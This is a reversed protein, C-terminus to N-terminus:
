RHNRVYLGEKLRHWNLSVLGGGALFNEGVTKVRMELLVTCSVVTITCIIKEDNQKLSPKVFQQLSMHSERLLCVGDVM